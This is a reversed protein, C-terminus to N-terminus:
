GLIWDHLLELRLYLFIALLLTAVAKIKSQGVNGALFVLPIVYFEFFRGQITPNFAFFWALAIGLFLAASVIRTLKLCQTMSACLAVGYVVILLYAWPFPKILPYGSILVGAYDPFKDIIVRLWDLTRLTPHAGSYLLILLAISGLPLIWRSLGFLRYSLLGPAFIAQSHVTFNSGLAVAGFVWSRVLFYIGVMMWSIALGARLQTLDYQVYCLPIFLLLALLRQRCLQDIIFLKLMIGFGCLVLAVRLSGPQFSLGLKILYYWIYDRTIPSGKTCDGHPCLGDIIAVYAMDDRALGIPRLVAFVVLALGILWFLPRDYRARHQSSCLNIGIGLGALTVMLWFGALTYSSSITALGHWQALLNIAQM